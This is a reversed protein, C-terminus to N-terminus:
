VMLGLGQIRFGSGRRPKPLKPRRRPRPRPRPKPWPRPKRRLRQRRLSRFDPSSHNNNRISKQPFLLRGGVLKQPAEAFVLKRKTPVECCRAEVSGEAIAVIEQCTSERHKRSCRKLDGPAEALMMSGYFRGCAEARVALLM